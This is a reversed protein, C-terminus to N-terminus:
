QSSLETIELIDLLAQEVANICPQGSDSTRMGRKLNDQKQEKQRMLACLRDLPRGGWKQFIRDDLFEQSQFELHHQGNLTEM